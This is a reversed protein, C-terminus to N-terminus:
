HQHAIRIYGPEKIGLFGYVLHTLAYLELAFPLYGGYGLLPMEFIRLWDGWPIQYIWKPYAFYNWLEWFFGTALVGFWLALIPSWNGQQNWRTLSQNGLWINVPELIFFLSLWAFPFFIRPWAMMLAFMVWGIIFFLLTTPKNPSIVPGRKKRKFFAFSAFLEATGFVAPIVVTFNLTSWFIFQLTSFHEAGIYVWNQLRWNLGEFIWWVPASLLFLGIYRRWDRTLLSTRTRYFLLADVTLCYGLWQPFFAWHTRPGTLVWNLVWFVIVLTLGVWGYIPYAARSTQTSKNPTNM